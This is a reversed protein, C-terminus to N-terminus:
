SCTAAASGGYLGGAIASSLGGGGSSGSCAQAMDSQLVARGDPGQVYVNGSTDVYQGNANKTLSSLTPGKPLVSSPLRTPDSAQVIVFGIGGLFLGEVASILAKVFVSGTLNDCTKLVFVQLGTFIVFVVMTAVSDLISRNTVLDLLYYWFITSTVVLGQPAWNSRLGEFGQIECGSYNTIAGGTRPRSSSSGLVAAALPSAAASAGSGPPAGPPPPAGARTNALRIADGILGNLGEWLFKFLFHAPISLIGILSPISYVGSMTFIDAFIGTLVLIHPLYTITDTMLTSFGAPGAPASAGNIYAVTGAVGVIASIISLILAGWWPVKEPAPSPKSSSSGM